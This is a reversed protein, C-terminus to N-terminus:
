RPSIVLEYDTANGHYKDEDVRASVVAIGWRGPRLTLSPGRLVPSGDACVWRETATNWRPYADAPLDAQCALLDAAATGPGSFQPAMTVGADANLVYYDTDGWGLVGRVGGAGGIWHHADVAHEGEHNSRTRLRAGIGQNRARGRHEHPRQAQQAAIVEDLVLGRQEIPPM